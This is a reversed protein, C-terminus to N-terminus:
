TKNGNVFLIEDCRLYRCESVNSVSDLMGELEESNKRMYMKWKRSHCALDDSKIGSATSNRTIDKRGFIPSKAPVSRTRLHVKADGFHYQSLKLRRKASEEIEIRKRYAQRLVSEESLSLDTISEVSSLASDPRSIKRGNRQQRDTINKPLKFNSHEGEQQFDLKLDVTTLKPPSIEPLNEHDDKQENPLNGVSRSTAALKHNQLPLTLTQTCPMSLRRTSTKLCQSSTVQEKKESKSTVALSVEIKPVDKNPSSISDEKVPKEPHIANDLHIPKDPRVPKMMDPILPKDQNAPKKRNVPNDTGSKLTDKSVSPKTKRLAFYLSKGRPSATTPQSTVKVGSLSGKRTQGPVHNTENVVSCSKRRRLSPHIFNSSREKAKSDDTSISKSRQFRRKPKTPPSPLLSKKNDDPAEKPILTHIDELIKWVPQEKQESNEEAEANHETFVDCELDDECSVSDVDSIEDPDRESVNDIAGVESICDSNSLREVTDDNNIKGTSNSSTDSKIYLDDVDIEDEIFDEESLEEEEEIASCCREEYKKILDKLGELSMQSPMSMRRGFQHSSSQPLPASDETGDEEFESASLNKAIGSGLHVSHRRKSLYAAKQDFRKKTQIKEELEEPVSVRVVQGPNWSTSSSSAANKMSSITRVVGSASILASRSEQKTVRSKCQKVESHSSNKDGDDDNKSTSVVVDVYRSHQLRQDLLHPASKYFNRSYKEKRIEILEKQVTTQESDFFKLKKDLLNQEAKNRKEAKLLSTRQPIFQFTKLSSSSFM